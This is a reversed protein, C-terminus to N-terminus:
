LFTFFRVKRGSKTVDKINVRLAKRYKREPCGLGAPASALVTGATDETCAAKHLLLQEDSSAQVRSSTRRLAPTRRGVAATGVRMRPACGRRVAGSHSSSVWGGPKSSKGRLRLPQIPSYIVIKREKFLYISEQPPPLQFPLTGDRGRAISPPWYSM